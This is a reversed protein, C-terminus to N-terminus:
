NAAQGLIVQDGPKIHSVAQRVSVLRQEYLNKWEM